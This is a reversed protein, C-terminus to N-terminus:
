SSEESCCPLRCPTHVARRIPTLTLNPNPNSNPKPNSNPLPNGLGIATVNVLAAPGGRADVLAKQQQAVLPAYDMRNDPQGDTAVILHQSYCPLQETPM